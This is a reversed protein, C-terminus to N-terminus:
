WASLVTKSPLVGISFTKRQRVVEGKVEFSGIGSVFYRAQWVTTVVIKFRGTKRFQHTIQGNPYRTGAVRTWQQNGDGWQWLWLATARITVSRGAIRMPTTQFSAPQGTWVVIPITTLTSQSPNVGPRLAPVLRVAKDLLTREVDHRTLPKTIGWCVSGIVQMKEFSEGFWVRYRIQDRGCTTVAHACLGDNGYSCYVTYRWICGLCNAVRHKTAGSGTFSNPLLLGGSGEYGDISDDGGVSISGNNTTDAFVPTGSILISTAIFTM